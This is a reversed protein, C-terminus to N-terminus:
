KRPIYLQKNKLLHFVVRVFKRATLALARKHNGKKVQHYKVSYYIKFEKDCRLLSFSAQILYYKLYKNDSRILHTHESEFNGSQYQSWALDAFKALSAHNKFRDIDGILSKFLQNLLLDHVM